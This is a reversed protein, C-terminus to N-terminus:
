TRLIKLQLADNWIGNDFHKTITAFSSQIYSHDLLKLISSEFFIGYYHPFDNENVQETLTPELWFILISVCFIIADEYGIFTLEVWFM